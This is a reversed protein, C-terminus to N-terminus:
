KSRRAHASTIAIIIVICGALLAFGPIAQNVGPALKLWLSVAAVLILVAATLRADAIFMSVLEKLVDTFITM